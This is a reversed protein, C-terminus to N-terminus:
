NCTLQLKHPHFITSPKPTLKRKLVVFARLHEDAKEKTPSFFKAKNKNQM